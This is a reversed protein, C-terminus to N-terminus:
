IRRDNSPSLAQIIWSIRTKENAIWRPIPPPKSYNGNNEAASNQRKSHEPRPKLSSAATSGSTEGPGRARDETHPSSPAKASRADPTRPSIQNEELIERVANKADASRKELYDKGRQIAEIIKGIDNISKVIAEVGFL